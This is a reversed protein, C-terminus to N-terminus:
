EPYNISQFQQGCQIKTVPFIKAANDLRYKKEMPCGKWLSKIENLAEISEPVEFGHWVHWMGEFISLKAEVNAEKIREYLIKSDDLLVEDSGIIFM